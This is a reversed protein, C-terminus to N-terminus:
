KSIVYIVSVTKYGLKNAFIEIM